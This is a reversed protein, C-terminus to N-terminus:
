PTVLYTDNWTGRYIYEGRLSSYDQISPGYLPDQVVVKQEGSVFELYGALAIFHAGGHPWLIRAGLPLQQDIWAKISAFDLFSNFLAGNPMLNKTITLADDLGAPQDCKQDPDASCDVPPNWQLEQELVQTALSAQTWTPAINGQVPDLYANISVAVAAWCWDSEDQDQMNFTPARGATSVGAPPSLTTVQAGSIAPPDTSASAQGSYGGIVIPGIVVPGGSGSGGGPGGGGTHGSPGGPSEGGQESQGPM